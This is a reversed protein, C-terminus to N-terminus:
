SPKRWTLTATGFDGQAVLCLLGDDSFTAVRLLEIGIRNPDTANLVKHRVVSGELTYTGAYFLVSDLVSDDNIISNISVSMYGSKDYILLGHAETRWHRTTGNNTLTFENLKWVGLLKELM